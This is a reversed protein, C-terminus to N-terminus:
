MKLHSSEEQKRFRWLSPMACDDLAEGPMCAIDTIFALQNANRLTSDSYIKRKGTKGKRLQKLEEFRRKLPCDRGHEERCLFCMRKMGDYMLNFRVGNVVISSGVNIPGTGNVNRVKIRRHGNLTRTGGNFQPSTQQVIEIGEMKIFIEDFDEHPISQHCTDYADFITILMGHDIHGGGGNRMRPRGGGRNEQRPREYFPQLPISIGRVEIFKGVYRDYNSSKLQYLGSGFRGIRRVTKFIDDEHDKEIAHIVENREIPSCVWEKRRTDITVHLIAVADVSSQTDVPNNVGTAVTQKLSTITKTTPSTTTTSTTTKPTTATTTTKTTTTSTTTTLASTTTATQLQKNNASQLQGILEM